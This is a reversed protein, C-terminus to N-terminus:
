ELTLSKLENEIEQQRDYLLLEKNYQFYEKCGYKNIFASTIPHITLETVLIVLEQGKPFVEECFLFVNSLSEGAKTASKKVEKLHADFDKKLLKFADEWQEIGVLNPKQNELM